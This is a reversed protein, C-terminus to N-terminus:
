IAEPVSQLIAECWGAESRRFCYNAYSAEAQVIKGNTYVNAYGEGLNDFVIAFVMSFGPERLILHRRSLCRAM